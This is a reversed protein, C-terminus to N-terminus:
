FKFHSIKPADDLLRTLTEFLVTSRVGQNVPADGVREILVAQMVPAQGTIAVLRGGPNLLGILHDPIKEVAGSIAIADFGVHAWRPNELLGNAQVIEVNTINANNLNTQAFEALAPAKEVTLVSAALRAILAAMFGSGTGIELAKDTPTLNLEQLLRAEVKPALMVQHEPLPVEMDVFALHRHSKPIFAERQVRTLLDLVNPDLVNWPRIQQEIMKSRANEINLFDPNM